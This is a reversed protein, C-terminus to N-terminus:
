KKKFDAKRASVADAFQVQGESSLGAILNANDAQLRKLAADNGAREIEHELRRLIAEESEPEDDKIPDGLLDKEVVKNEEATAADPKGEAAAPAAKEAPEEPIEPAPGTALPKTVDGFLEEVTAEQNKLAAFMGRLTPIHELTIDSLGVVGIAACVREPSVGFAAFAKMSKERTVVLTEATGKIVREASDYAKRWVAKPVAGLIANRKAISAAANGTVTIMDDNFIKGYKDVIRRRVRASVATNTELDHFVGEAEVIKEARDIHTVRTAVRCNGWQSAIIEAFRISPGVIPKGGRPLAFICEQATEEDLTALTTINRVAREISRPYARATTIQQDIEARALSIALEQQPQQLDSPTILEQKAPANM